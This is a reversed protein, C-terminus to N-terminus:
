KLVGQTEEAERRLIQCMLWDCWEAGLDGGNQSQHRDILEAARDHAERAQDQLNQRRLAMSLFLGSLAKCQLTTSPTADIAKKLWSVAETLRGARYEAIGKTSMVWYYLKKNAESALARDVLRTPIGPDGPCNPTLSWLKAIREGLLIDHSDEFKRQMDLCRKRYGDGDGIEVLTPIASYWTWENDPDLELAQRFDNAAQRWRGLRSNDNGRRVLLDAKLSPASESAIQANLSAVSDFLNSLGSTQPPRPISNVASTPPPQPLESVVGYNRTSAFALAVLAAAAIM